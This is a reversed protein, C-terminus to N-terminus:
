RALDEVKMPDVFHSRLWTVAKAVNHVKSQALAIQAVRTGIPSRLLRILMEDITLPAILKAEDPTVTLELLRSAANLIGADSQSVYVASSERAQTLGQPFVTLALETVRQSDLHLMFCLYPESPSAQIIRASVPVDVSYITMRSAEYRIVTQGLTVSKAGQAVLCLAPQQM